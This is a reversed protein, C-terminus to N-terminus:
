RTKLFIYERQANEDDPYSRLYGEMLSRASAFDGIRECAVIENYKLTQLMPNDPIKMAARFSALADESNGTKLYCLGMENYIEPSNGGANIYSSYVSVAYNYDGLIEYTKGLFLVAGFGETDKARELYTRASEYDELYFSIQGKEFDTMKKDGTELATKLYQLGTEQYGNDSLIEYIRILRVYNEPDLAICKDFSLKAEDARGQEAYLVGRLYMADTEEPRLKLIADYIRVAEDINGMRYYATALYYNIDFDMDTLIGNSLSLAQEFAAISEEYMGKGLYAIGEGRYAYRLDHGNEIEQSLIEIAEDYEQVGIHSFASQLPTEEGSSSCGAFLIGISLCLASVLIRLGKPYHNKIMHNNVKGFGLPYGDLCLLHYGPSPEEGSPIMLTEGKLYRVADERTLATVNRFEEPHLFLALAHSPVFYNKKLTGLHLGPRLVKLGTLDPFDKRALYLEEGFTLFGGEKRVSDGFTGTLYEKSFEGFSPYDTIKKLRIAGCPPTVSGYRLTGEKHFLAYFHGEGRIRHMMLRESRVLKLDPYSNEFWAANEENECPEFTCTSYVLDGGPTLMRYACSLIERQREACMRVNEPSWERVAEPNKRFMGEGSCPADVLIRTFFGAFREQLSQPSEQLVLVNGIGMREMNGSLIKARDKVIENSVLFGSGTLYSAIQVSKGGPAACLDLVRDEPGVGLASVPAMASPEQLYFVGSMHYPDNGSVTGDKIYFGDPSFPVADERRIGWPNRVLFVDTSQKRSNVFLAKHPEKEYESFFADAEGSLLEKMRDTYERPLMPM